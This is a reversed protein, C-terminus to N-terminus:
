RWGRDYRRTLLDRAERRLTRLGSRVREPVELDLGPRLRKLMRSREDEPADERGRRPRAPESIREIVEEVETERQLDLGAYSVALDAQSVIGVLSGDAAVVPVRRVRVRKMVEFVDRVHDNESVTRPDASMIERVTTRKMDKGEAAARIAIDRDTVMGELHRSDDSEIVPIVGVDLDRMRRAVEAVSTDPTVAEPNRTMIDAVRVSDVGSREDRGGAEGWAGRKHPTPERGYRLAPRSGRDYGRAAAYGLERGYGSGPGGGSWRAERYSRDYPVSVRERRGWGPPPGGGYYVDYRGGYDNAYRYM